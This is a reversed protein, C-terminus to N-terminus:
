DSPFLLAHQHINSLTATAMFTPQRTSATAKSLTIYGTVRCPLLSPAHPICIELDREEKGEIEELVERHGSGVPLWLSLVCNVLGM